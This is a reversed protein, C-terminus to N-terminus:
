KDTEIAIGDALRRTDFSSQGNQVSNSTGAVSEATVLINVGDVTKSQLVGDEEITVTEVGNEIVRCRVVLRNLLL